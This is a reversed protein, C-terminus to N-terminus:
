MFSMLYSAPGVIAAFIFTNKVSYTMFIDDDLFLRIYNDLGVFNPFELMNFDTFSIVISVIVPLMTFLSFVLMYPFVMLYAVKNKKMEKWTWQWKTMESRSVARKKATQESM